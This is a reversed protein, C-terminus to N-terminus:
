SKLRNKIFQIVSRLIPVNEYVFAGMDFYDRHYVVKNEASFEFVSVGPLVVEEGGNLGSAKLYMTWTSSVKQGQVIHDHFDFRISQVNQYLNEYYARVSDLGQHEGLPDVFRVNPDYFDDLLQLSDKNFDNFIQDIKTTLNTENAMLDGQLFLISLSLLWVLKKM